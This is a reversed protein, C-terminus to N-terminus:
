TGPFTGDQALFPRFRPTQWFKTALWPNGCAFPSMSLCDLWCVGGSLTHFVVLTFDFTVLLALGLWLVYAGPGRFVVFPGSLTLYAALDGFLTVILWARCPNSPGDRSASPYPRTVFGVALWYHGGSHRGADGHGGQRQRAVGGCSPFRVESGHWGGDDNTTSQRSLTVLYPTDRCWVPFLEVAFASATRFRWGCMRGFLRFGPLPPSDRRASTSATKTRSRAPM